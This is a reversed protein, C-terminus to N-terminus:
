YRVANIVDLTILHGKDYFLICIIIHCRRSMVMIMLAIRLRVVGGERFFLCLPKTTSPSPQLELLM